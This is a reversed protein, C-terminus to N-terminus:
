QDKGGRRPRFEALQLRLSQRGEFTYRKVAGVSVEMIEATGAESLGIADRLTVAERQRVPLQQLARRVIARDAVGLAGHDVDRLVAPPDPHLDKARSDHPKQRKSRENRAIKFVYGEPAELTRVHGWRRRAGLFADDAIEEALGQDCGMNILFGQVRGLWKRYLDAAEDDYDEELSM